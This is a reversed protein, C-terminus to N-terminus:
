SNSKALTQSLAGRLDQNEKTLASLQQQLRQNNKLTFNCIEVMTNFNDVEYFNVAYQKYMSM